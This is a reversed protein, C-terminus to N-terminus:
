TRCGPRGPAPADSDRSAPRVAPRRASRLPAASRAADGPRHRARYGTTYAIVWGSPLPAGPPGAMSGSSTPPPAAAPAWRSSVPRCCMACMVPGWRNRAARRRALPSRPTRSAAPTGSAAPSTSYPSHLSRHPRLCGAQQQAAGRGVRDEAAAILDRPPHPVPQPAGPPPHRVVDRDDAEVVPFRNSDTGSGEGTGGCGPGIGSSEGTGGCGPGIGSGDGTGGCGPGTGDGGRGPGAGVGGLGM